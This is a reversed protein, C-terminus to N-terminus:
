LMFIFLSVRQEIVLANTGKFSSSIMCRTSVDHWGFLIHKDYTKTLIPVFFIMCLFLSSTFSFWFRKGLSILFRCPVPVQRLFPTVTDQSTLTQLSLARPLLNRCSAIMLKFEDIHGLHGLLCEHNCMSAFIRFKYTVIVLDGANDLYIQVM